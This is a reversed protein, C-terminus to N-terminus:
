SGVGQERSWGPPEYNEVSKRWSTFRHPSILGWILIHFVGAAIAAYTEM